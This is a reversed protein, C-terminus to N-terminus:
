QYSNSSTPRAISFLYVFRQGNGWIGKNVVRAECFGSEEECQLFFALGIIIDHLVLGPGHVRRIYIGVVSAHGTRYGHTRTQLAQIIGSFALGWDM